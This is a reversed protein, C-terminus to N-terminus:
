ALCRMGVPSNYNDSFPSITTTSPVASMYLARRVAAAGRNLHGLEPLQSLVSVATLRGVGDLAELKAVPAQWQPARELAARLEAQVAEMQKDLHAELKAQRAQVFALDAHEAHNRLANRQEILQHRWQVLARLEALAADPRPTAAPKLAQGYASLVSADLPANGSSNM